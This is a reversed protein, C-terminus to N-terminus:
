KSKVLCSNVADKDHLHEQTIKMTDLYLISGNSHLLCIDFNLIQQICFVNIYVCKHSLFDGLTSPTKM